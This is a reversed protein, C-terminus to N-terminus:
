KVATQAASNIKIMCKARGWFRKGDLAIGFLYGLVTFALYVPIAYWLIPIYPHTETELLFSPSLGEFIAKVAQVGGYPGMMWIPNQTLLVSYLTDATASGSILAYLTNNLLVLALLLLFLLGFKWGDKWDFKFLGWMAPLISTAVLLTHCTWFRLYEWNFITSGIFWYPIFLTMAAGITGVYCVFQKLLSNGFVYVFPTSIIMIACVNYATNIISLGSGWLHPWVLPKFFHQAINIGMLSYLLIEKEYAGRKHLPFYCAAIFLAAALITIIYTHNFYNIVM